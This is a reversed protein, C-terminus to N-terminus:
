IWTAVIREPDHHRTMETGAPARPKSDDVPSFVARRSAEKALAYADPDLSALREAEALAGARLESVPLSAHALGYRCATAADVPAADFMLQEAHLGCVHHLLEVTKVPFAVGVKLETVGIRAEEAILRKDCACALLCGGAIAAGNVAAVTPLPSRFLGVIAVELAALLDTTYGIDSKLVQNVDLGASFVSGKGSLVVAGVGPDRECKTVAEAIEEFVAKDLANVKNTALELVAVRGVHSIELGTSTDGTM